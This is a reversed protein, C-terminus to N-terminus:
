MRPRRPRLRYRYRDGAGDVVDLSDDRRGICRIWTPSGGLGACVYSGDELREFDGARYWGWDIWGNDTQVELIFTEPM